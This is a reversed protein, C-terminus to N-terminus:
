RMKKGDIMVIGSKTSGDRNSVGRSAVFKGSTQLTYSNLWSEWKDKSYHRMFGTIYKAEEEEGTMVSLSTLQTCCQPLQYSKMDQLYTKSTNPEKHGRRMRCENMSLQENSCVICPMARPATHKVSLRCYHSSKKSTVCATCRDLIVICPSQNM